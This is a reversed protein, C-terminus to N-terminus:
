AGIETRITQPILSAMARLILPSSAGIHIALLAKMQFGSALYAYAVVAGVGGAILYTIWYLPDRFNPRQDLPLKHAEALNVFHVATGGFAALLVLSPDM